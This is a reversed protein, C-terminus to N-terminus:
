AIGSAGRGLQELLLFYQDFQAPVEIQKKCHPCVMVSLMEAQGADVKGSCKPCDFKRIREVTFENAAVSLASWRSTPM